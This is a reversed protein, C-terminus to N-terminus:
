GLSFYPFDDHLFLMENKTGCFDCDQTLINAKDTMRGFVAMEFNNKELNKLYLALLDPKPM